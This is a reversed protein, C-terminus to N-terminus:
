GVKQEEGEQQNRSEFIEGMKYKQWETNITKTRSEV